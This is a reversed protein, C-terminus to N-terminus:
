PSLDVGAAHALLHVLPGPEYLVWMTQDGKLTWGVALKRVGLTIPSMPEVDRDPQVRIKVSGDLAPSNPPVEVERWDTIDIMKGAHSKPTVVRAFIMRRPPEHLDDDLGPSTHASLHRLYVISRPSLKPDPLDYPCTEIENKASGLAADLQMGEFRMLFGVRAKFWAPDATKRAHRGIKEPGNKFCRRGVHAGCWIADARAHLKKGCSRCRHHHRSDLEPDRIPM